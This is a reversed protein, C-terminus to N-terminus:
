RAVLVREASGGYGERTGPERALLVGATAAGGLVIAVSTWVWPNTYWRRVEQRDRPSSADHPASGVTEPELALTITQVEGGRVSFARKMPLYGFASLELAREGVSLLLPEGERREVPAGDVQLRADPPTTRLTIRAVFSRARELLAETEQRIPATLPRVPSALAAELERICEGYNRLEFQTMGLGRHTRANPFLANARYFLSRAEEFHQAAYERLADEVVARYEAPESVAEDALASPALLWACACLWAAWFSWMKSRM